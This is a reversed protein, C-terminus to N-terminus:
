PQDEKTPDTDGAALAKAKEAVLAATFLRQFRDRHIPALAADYDDSAQHRARYKRWFELLTGAIRQSEANLPRADERVQLVRLQTEIRAWGEAYPAYPLKAKGAKAKAEILRDYFAFAQASTDTIAKAAEADYDAVYKVSACAALGLCLALLLLHRLWHLSSPTRAAAPAAGSRVDM